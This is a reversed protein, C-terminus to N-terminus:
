ADTVGKVEKKTKNNRKIKNRKEKITKAEEIAEESTMIRSPTVKLSSTNQRKKITTESKLQFLESQLCAIHKKLADLEKIIEINILSTRTCQINDKANNEDTENRVNSIKLNIPIESTITNAKTKKDMKNYVILPNFPCIGALEFSKKINVINFTDLWLESVLKVFEQNSLYNVMLETIREPLKNRLSSKFRKFLNIDLPQIIHTCNSPLALLEINNQKATIIVDYTLHSKLNDLILLHIESKNRKTNLWEIFRKLWDIFVIENIFGSPTCIAWADNHSFFKLDETKYSLGQFIFLPPAFKGSANVCPM